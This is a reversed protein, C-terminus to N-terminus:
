PPQTSVTGLRVQEAAQTDALGFDVLSPPVILNHTRTQNLQPTSPMNGAKGYQADGWCFLQAQSGQLSSGAGAVVSCAHRAGCSVQTARGGGLGVVQCLTAM